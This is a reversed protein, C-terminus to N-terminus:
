IAAMGPENVIGAMFFPLPAAFIRATIRFNAFIM